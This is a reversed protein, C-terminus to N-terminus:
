GSQSGIPTNRTIVVQLNSMLVQQTNAVSISLTITPFQADCNWWSFHNVMGVYKNGVKTASGEEKWYGAVEDFYWLPITNPAASLQENNIPMEITAPNVIQLKNGTADQLEINIMGYTELIRQAGSSNEAMLSGPMKNFTSEDGPDLHHMLVKVNGTYAAGSETKFNGDFSVKAGNNLTVNSSSGSEITAQVNATLMTIKIDTEGVNPVVTRSGNIFGSKKATVYAFKEFVEANRIYFIGDSNTLQTSAGIKIEVGEIPESSENIVQGIFDRTVLNGFNENFNGTQNPVVDKDDSKSCNLLTFVLLLVSILKALKM